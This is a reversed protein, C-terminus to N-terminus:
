LFPGDTASLFTMFASDYTLLVDYAGLNTVNEVTIDVSFSTQSSSVSQSPPAVREIAYGAPATPTDAPQQASARYSPARSILLASAAVLALVIGAAGRAAL